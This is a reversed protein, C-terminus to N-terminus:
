EQKRIMKLTIRCRSVSSQAGQSPSWEARKELDLCKDYAEGIKDQIGPVQESASSRLSKQTAHNYSRALNIEFELRAEAPLCQLVAYDSQVYSQEGELDTSAVVGSFEHRNKLQKASLSSVDFDNFARLFLVFSVSEVHLITPRM